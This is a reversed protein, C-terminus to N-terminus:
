HQLQCTNPRKHSQTSQLISRHACDHPIAEETQEKQKKEKRFAQFAQIDQMMKMPNVNFMQASQAILEPTIEKTQAEHMIYKMANQSKVAEMRQENAANQEQLLKQTRLDGGGIANMVQPLINALAMMQSDKNSGPMTNEPM